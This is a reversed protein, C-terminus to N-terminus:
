VSRPDLYLAYKAGHMISTKFPGTYRLMFDKAASFQGTDYSQFTM